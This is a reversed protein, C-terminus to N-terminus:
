TASQVEEVAKENDAAAHSAEGVTPLEGEASEESTEESTLVLRLLEERYRYGTGAALSLSALLALLSGIPLRVSIVRLRKLLSKQFKRVPMHVNEGLVSRNLVAAHYYLATIVSIAVIVVALLSHGDALGQYLIQALGLNVVM